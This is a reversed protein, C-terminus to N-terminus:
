AAGGVHSRLALVMAVLLCGIVMRNDRVCLGGFWFRGNHARLSSWTRAYPTM